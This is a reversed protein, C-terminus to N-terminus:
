LGRIDADTRFAALLASKGGVQLTEWIQAIVKRIKYLLTAWKGL